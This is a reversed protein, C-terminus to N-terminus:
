KTNVRNYANRYDNLLKMNRLSECLYTQKGSHRSTTVKMGNEGYKVGKSHLYSAEQQTIKKM